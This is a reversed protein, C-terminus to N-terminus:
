NETEIVVGRGPLGTPFEVSTRIPDLGLRFPRPHNIATTKLWNDSDFAEDTFEFFDM